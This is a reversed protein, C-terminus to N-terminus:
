YNIEYENVIGNTMEIEDTWSITEIGNKTVSTQISYYSDNQIHVTIESDVNNGIWFARLGDDTAISQPQNQDGHNIIDTVISMDLPTNSQRVYINISDNEDYPDISKVTIVLDEWNRVGIIFPNNESIDAITNNLNGEIFQTYTDDNKRSFVLSNTLSEYAIQESFEGQEDTTIDIYDLTETWDWISPDEGNQHKLGTRVNFSINPIPENTYQNVIKGKIEIYKLDSEDVKACSTAVILLIFFILKNTIRLKIM